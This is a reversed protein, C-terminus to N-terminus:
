FSVEVTKEPALFRGLSEGEAELERKIKAPLARFVTLTLSISKKKSEADWSGAVFGDVLFVPLVQLNKTSVKPRDEDSIIRSRDAHGMIACDFGPLFRVPAPTDEEARVGDPVDFLERKREDREVALRPRLKEFVPKLTKLGSWTQADAVTAPGFAALYRL